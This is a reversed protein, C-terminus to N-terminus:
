DGDMLIDGLDEIDQIVTEGWNENYVEALKVYARDANEDYAPRAFPEPASHSTGNEVLRLYWGDHKAKKGVEPGIIVLQKGKVLPKLAKMKLSKKGNGPEHNYNGDKSVPCKERMSRLIIRGGALTSKRLLKEENKDCAELFETLDGLGFLEAGFMNPM